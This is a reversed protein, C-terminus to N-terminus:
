HSSSQPMISTLADELEHISEDCHEISSQVRRQFWWGMSEGDVEHEAYENLLHCADFMAQEAEEIDDNEPLQGQEKLMMMRSILDNQHRFVAEAYQSFNEYQQASAPLSACGASVIIFSLLLSAALPRLLVM